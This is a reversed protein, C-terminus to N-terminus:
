YVYTRHYDLYQSVKGPMAVIKHKKSPPLGIAELEPGSLKAMLNGHKDFTILGRDFARDIGAALFLGNEPDLREDNDSSKWPKIHSAILLADVQLGTVSCQNNWLAMVDKRFQGQGKRADMLRKITTEELQRKPIPLGPSSESLAHWIAEGISDSNLRALYILNFKDAQRELLKPTTTTRFAESVGPIALVQARTLPSQSKQYTALVLQGGQAVDYPTGGVYPRPEDVAREEVVCWGMLQGAYYNFVVDGPELDAMLRWHEPVRGNSQRAPAWLCEAALEKPYSGGQNVWYYAM